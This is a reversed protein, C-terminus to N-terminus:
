FNTALNDVLIRTGCVRVLIYCLAEPEVNEIDLIEFSQVFNYSLGLTTSILSHRLCTM